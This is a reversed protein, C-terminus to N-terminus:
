SGTIPSIVYSQVHSTHEYSVHMAIHPRGWHEAWARRAAFRHLDADFLIRGKKSEHMM